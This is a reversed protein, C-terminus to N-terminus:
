RATKGKKNEDHRMRVHKKRRRIPKPIRALEYLARRQEKTIKRNFDEVGRRPIEVGRGGVSSLDLLLDMVKRRPKGASKREIIKFNEYAIFDAPQLPVCDEWGMPAITTFRDRHQFSADNKMANFADLLVADFGATRDHILSVNMGKYKRDGLLKEGIWVMIKQLFWAYTIEKSKGRIGSPFVEEIDKLSVTYSIIAVNHRGFVKLLGELFAKRKNENWGKFDKAFSQLDTSHYRKVTRRHQKRLISNTKEIWNLWANEFCWWLGGSTMVCSLTFLRTRDDGSEDIHGVLLAFVRRRFSGGGLCQFLERVPIVISEWITVSM